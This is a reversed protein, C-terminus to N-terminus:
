HLITACLAMGPAKAPPNMLNRTEFPGEPSGIEISALLGDVTRGDKAFPLLLREFHVIRQNHDRLDLVTYVPLRTVISQRCTALSQQLYPPQLVEDVYKGVHYGGHAEIMRAGQMTILLRHSEETGVVDAYALNDAMAMIEPVAELGPWQPLLAEGRARHWYSLLWRQTSSGVIDPRATLFEV